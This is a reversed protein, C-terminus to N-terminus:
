VNGSRVRLLADGHLACRSPRAEARGQPLSVEPFSCFLMLREIGRNYWSNVNYTHM